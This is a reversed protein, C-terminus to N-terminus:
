YQYWVDGDVGGSPNATSVTRTGHANSPLVGAPYWGSGNCALFIGEGNQLVLSARTTGGLHINGSSPALTAPSGTNNLVYCFFGNGLSTDLTLTTLGPLLVVIKARDNETLASNSSKAPVQCEQLIRTGSKRLGNGLTLIQANGTGTKEVLGNETLNGIATLLANLPQYTGDHNHVVKAYFGDADEKAIYTKFLDAVLVWTPTLDRLQYLKLQDTRFCFMGVELHTTPFTTGAYCSKVSRNNDMIYERSEALTHSGQIETYNQTM